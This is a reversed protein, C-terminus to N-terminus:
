YYHLIFGGIADSIKYAFLALSYNVSFSKIDQGHSAFGSKNRIESIEQMVSSIRRALESYREKHSEVSLMLAEVTQKVLVQFKADQSYNTNKNTLITKCIGEVLSKCTDICLAPNMEVSEEITSVHRNFANFSPMKSINEKIWLM